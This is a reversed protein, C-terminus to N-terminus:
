SALLFYLAVLVGAVVALAGVLVVVNDIVVAAVIAVVVALLGLGLVPLEPRELGTGASGSPEERPQPKSLSEDVRVSEDEEEAEALEVDIWRTEAGYGSAVKLKGRVPTTTLAEENVHVRLARQSEGEVYHNTAEIAAIESLADDLHVHLHLSEGHNILRVDFSGDTEFSAPVELSHIDQRNVHVPLDDAM